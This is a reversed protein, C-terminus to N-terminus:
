CSGILTRPSFQRLHLLLQSVVEARLTRDSEWNTGFAPNNQTPDPDALNLAQGKCFSAWMAREPENWEVPPEDSSSASQDSADIRETVSQEQTVRVHHRVNLSV